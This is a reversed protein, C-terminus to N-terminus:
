LLHPVILIGGLEFAKRGLNQLGEDAITVDGYKLSFDKLPLYCRLYDVGMMCFQFPSDLM